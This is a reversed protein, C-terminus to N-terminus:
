SEVERLIIITEGAHVQNQTEVLRPNRERLTDIYELVYTNGCNQEAISWVTDGSQVTYSIETYQREPAFGSTIVAIGLLGACILSKKM